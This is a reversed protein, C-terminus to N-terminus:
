NDKRFVANPAAVTSDLMRDHWDDFTLPEDYDKGDRRWGDPDMIRVGYMSNWVEPTFELEDV